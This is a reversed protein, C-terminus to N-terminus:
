VDSSSVTAHDVPLGFRREIENVEIDERYRQDSEPHTLLVIRDAPFTGLADAIAELPDGEGTDGSAAVGAEGLQEVTVRSIDRAKEIAEDADSLWFQFANAHLAPTVVLVEADEPRVDAQLATRLQDASIAESTLVLVKM